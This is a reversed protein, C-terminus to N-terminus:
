RGAEQMELYKRKRINRTAAEEEEDNENDSIHSM